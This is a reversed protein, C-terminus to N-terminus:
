NATCSAVLFECYDDIFSLEFSIGLFNPYVVVGTSSSPTSAPVDLKVTQGAHVLSVLGASCLLALSLQGGLAM